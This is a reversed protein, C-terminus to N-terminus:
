SHEPQPQLARAIRHISINRGHLADDQYLLKSSSDAHLRARSARGAIRLGEVRIGSSGTGSSFMSDASSSEVRLVHSFECRMLDGDRLGSQQLAVMPVTALVCDDATRLTAIGFASSSSEGSHGGDCHLMLVCQQTSPIASASAAGNTMSGAAAAGAAAAAPAPSASAAAALSTLAISPNSASIVPAASDMAAGAAAKRPGRKAAAATKREVSMADSASTSSLASEEAAAEATSGKEVAMQSEKKRRRQRRAANKKAKKAAEAATPLAADRAVTPHVAHGTPATRQLLYQSCHEDRWRMALENVGSTYLSQRHLFMLGDPRVTSAAADSLSRDVPYVAQLAVPSARHYSLREFAFHQHPGVAALATLGIEQLRSTLWFIRMESDCHLLATSRWYLVDCLFYRRSSESFIADLLVSEESAHTADSGNPLLSQFAALFNGDKSRAITRGGRALLLCRAGEPRSCVFYDSLAGFQEL